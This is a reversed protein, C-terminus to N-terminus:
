SMAAKSYQQYYSRPPEEGVVRRDIELQLALQSERCIREDNPEDELEDEKTPSQCHDGDLRLPLVDDEGYISNAELVTVSPAAVSTLHTPTNVIQM